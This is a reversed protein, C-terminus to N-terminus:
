VNSLSNNEVGDENQLCRGVVRSCKWTKLVVYSVRQPDFYHSRNTLTLTSKLESVSRAIFCAHFMMYALWNVMVEKWISEFLSIWMSKLTRKFGADASSAANRIELAGLWGECSVNNKIKYLCSAGEERRTLYCDCVHNKVSTVCVSAKVRLPFM